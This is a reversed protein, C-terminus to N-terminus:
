RRTKRPRAWRPASSREAIALTRSIADLRVLLWQLDWAAPLNRRLRATPVRRIPDPDTLVRVLAVLQDRIAPPPEAAFVSYAFEYKERMEGLRGLFALKRVEDSPLSESYQLLASHDGFVMATLGVGTALEFLLSGLLYLEARWLVDPDTSGQLWLFEPPAFRLDGRGASYALAPFRDPVSTDRSRGLDSLRASPDSEFVLANGSKLDRHVMRKRHMQHAGKAVERFLSLRDAWSLRTLDALLMEISGAALELVAYRAKFELVAGASTSVHIEHVGSELLTVINSCRELARLLSVETEFEIIAEPDQHLASLVKVAVSSGTTRDIAAFVGSFYGDALLSHIEFRGGFVEGLYIRVENADL